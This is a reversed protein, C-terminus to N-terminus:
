KSRRVEVGVRDVDAEIRPSTKRVKVLVERALPSSLAGAAISEALTEVLRVPEGEVVKRAEDILSTYDVTADLDDIKETRDIQLEIDIEFTQDDVREAEDVGHRGSLRLGQVVIRDM